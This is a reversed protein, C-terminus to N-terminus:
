ELSWVRSLPNYANLSDFMYCEVTYSDEKAPIDVSIEETSDGSLNVTKTKLAITKNGDYVAVILM